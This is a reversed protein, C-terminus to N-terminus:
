NKFIILEQLILSVRKNVSICISVKWDNIFRIRNKYRSERKYIVGHQKRIYSFKIASVAFGIGSTSFFELPLPSSSDLVGTSIFLPSQARLTTGQIPPRIREMSCMGEPLAWTCLVKWWNFPSYYWLLNKLMYPQSHHGDLEICLKSIHYQDNQEEVM